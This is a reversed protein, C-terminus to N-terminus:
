GGNLDLRFRYQSTCPSGGCVGPKYKTSMLVRQARETMQVSRTTSNDDVKTATGDPGVTVKMDLAGRAQLTRQANKISNFIPKIGEAPFPPEDGPPLSSYMKHLEAKQEDNLEGYTKNLPIKSDWRLNKKLITGTAQTAEVSHRTPATSSGGGSTRDQAFTTTFTFASVAVLLSSKLINM